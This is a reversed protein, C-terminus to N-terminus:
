ENFVKAEQQYHRTVMAGLLIQLATQEEPSFRQYAAWVTEDVPIGITAQNLVEEFRSAVLLLRCPSVVVGLRTVLLSHMSWGGTQMESLVRALADEDCQWTQWVLDRPM